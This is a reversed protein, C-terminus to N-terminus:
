PCDTGTVFVGVNKTMSAGAGDSVGIEFSARGCRESAFLATTGSLSVSGNVASGVRFVPAETYGAFVRELDM